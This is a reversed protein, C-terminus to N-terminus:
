KAFQIALFFNFLKKEKKVGKEIRKRGKITNNRISSHSVTTSLFM